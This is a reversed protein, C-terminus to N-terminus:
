GTGEALAAVVPWGVMGGPDLHRLAALKQLAQARENQRLHIFALAKLTYLAFRGAGDPMSSPPQWEQWDAAWGAQCAAERLGTEAVAQAEHLNAQYTHIKYLCFYVPLQGPAEALAQRFLAAARARDHRYAVVGQQLLANITEPIDGFNITEFDKPLDMMDPESAQNNCHPELRLIRVM